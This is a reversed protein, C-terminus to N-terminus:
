ESERNIYVPYGTFDDDVKPGGARQESAFEFGARIGGIRPALILGEDDERGETQFM